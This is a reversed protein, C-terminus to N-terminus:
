TEHRLQTKKAGLEDATDSAVYYLPRHQAEAFLRGVYEGLLGLCLLQVAGLFLIGVTVSAWGPVTHGLLYAAVAGATLLGCLMAGYLGVWTAIRLPAGTFSTVSDLALRTMKHLPYKSVGAARKERRYAVQSSPHGLWPILLRYVRHREPLAKLDDVVARSMLRFDGASHPVDDGALRRILRYYLGATWRKFRSDSSRDERVAYVVDSGDARARELMLPILEPPDQLDADITVVWDGRARELGATLAAQHGSNRRLRVVRLQPWDQRLGALVLATGDRSGDDVAVVEYPEHLADLVTRLRAATLPLVEEEEFVPVVVSLM